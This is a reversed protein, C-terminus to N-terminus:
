LSSSGICSTGPDEIWGFLALGVEDVPILSFSFLELDNNLNLYDQLLNGDFDFQPAFGGSCLVEPLTDFLIGYFSFKNYDKSILMKDFEAKKDLLERLSKKLAIEHLQVFSQIGNQVDLTRGIDTQRFIPISEIAAKKTFLERCLARYSLLFCQEKKKRFPLKEIPAFTSDDHYQCFGTFTSAEGIGLPKAILKGNTEILTKMDPRFGMVHGNEAIKSLGGSKQITHAKVIKGNCAQESAAPHLCYKRSFNKIIQKEMAFPSQQVMSERGYHCKKYKKGSGCWCPDNRGIKKKNKTM